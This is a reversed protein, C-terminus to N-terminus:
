GVQKGERAAAESDLLRKYKDQLPRRGGPHRGFGASACGTGRSHCTGRRGRGGYGQDGPQGEREGDKNLEVDMEFKDLEGKGKPPIGSAGRSHSLPVLRGEEAWPGEGRLMEKSFM